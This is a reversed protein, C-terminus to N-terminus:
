SLLQNRSFDRMGSEGSLKYQFGGKQSGEMFGELVNRLLHRNVSDRNRLLLLCLQRVQAQRRRHRVCLSLFCVYKGGKLHAFSQASYQARQTFTNSKVSALDVLIHDLHLGALNIPSLRRVLYSFSYARSQKDLRRTRLVTDAVVLLSTLGSKCWFSPSLSWLSWRQGEEPVDPLNTSLRRRTWYKAEGHPLM